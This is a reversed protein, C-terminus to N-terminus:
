RQDTRRPRLQEILKLKVEQPLHESLFPSLLDALRQGKEECLHNATIAVRSNEMLEVFLKAMEQLPNPKCNEPLLIAIRGDPRLEFDIVVPVRYPTAPWDEMFRRNQSSNFQVHFENHLPALSLAQGFGSAPKWKVIFLNRNEEVLAIKFDEGNVTNSKTKYEHLRCFAVIEDTAKIRIQGNRTGRAGQVFERRIPWAYNGKLLQRQIPIVTEEAITTM